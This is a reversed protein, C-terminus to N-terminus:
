HRGWGGPPEYNPGLITSEREASPLMGVWGRPEPRTNSLPGVTVLFLVLAMSLTAAAARFALGDAAANCPRPPIGAVAKLQLQATASWEQPLLSVPVRRLLMETAQMERFRHRCRLCRDIHQRVLRAEDSTLEDDLYASLRRRIGWHMM